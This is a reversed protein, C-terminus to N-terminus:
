RSGLLLTWERTDRKVTRKKKTGLEEGEDDSMEEDAVIESSESPKPARPPTTSNGLEPSHPDDAITSMPRAFCTPETISSSFCLVKCKPNTCQVPLRPDM